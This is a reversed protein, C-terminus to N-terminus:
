CHDAAPDLNFKPPRPRGGGLWPCTGEWTDTADFTVAAVETM